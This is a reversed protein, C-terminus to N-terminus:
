LRCQVKKTVSNTIYILPMSMAALINLHFIAQVPLTFCEKRYMVVLCGKEGCMLEQLRVTLLRSMGASLLNCAFVLMQQAHCHMMLRADAM